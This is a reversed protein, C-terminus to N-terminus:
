RFVIWVATMESSENEAQRRCCVRSLVYTSVRVELPTSARQGGYTCALARGYIWLTRARALITDEYFRLDFIVASEVRHSATCAFFIILRVIKKYARRLTRTHVNNRM